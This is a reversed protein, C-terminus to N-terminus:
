KRRDRKQNLEMDRSKRKLERAGVTAVAFIQKGRECRKAEKRMKERGETDELREKQQKQRKGATKKQRPCAVRYRALDTRRDTRVEKWLMKSSATNKDKKHPQNTTRATQQNIQLSDTPSDTPQDPLLKFRM